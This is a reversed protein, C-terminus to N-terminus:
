FVIINLKLLVQSSLIEFVIQGNDLMHKQKREFHYDYKIELNQIIMDWASTSGCLFLHWSHRGHTMQSRITAVM